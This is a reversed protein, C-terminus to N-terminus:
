CRRQQPTPLGASLHALAWAYFTRATAEAASCPETTKCGAVASASLLSLCTLNHILANM